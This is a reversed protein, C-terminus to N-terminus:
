VAQNILSSSLYLFFYDRIESLCDKMVFILINRKSVHYRQAIICCFHHLRNVVQEVM